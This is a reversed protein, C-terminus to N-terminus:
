ANPNRVWDTSIKTETWTQEYNYVGTPDLTVARTVYDVVGVTEGTSTNTLVGYMDDRAKMKVLNKLSGQPGASITREVYWEIEVSGPRISTTEDGLTFSTVSSFAEYKTSNKEASVTFVTDSSPFVNPEFLIIGNTYAIAGTGDGALEYTTTTDDALLDTGWEVTVTGPKIDGEGLDMVYEISTTDSSPALDKVDDFKGWKVIISSGVDPLAGLTLVLSGTWYDITGSGTNELDPVLKGHGDDRIRYWKGQAMYDIILSNPAPYPDILSPVYNYARNALKIYIEKTVSSNAIVAGLNVSIQASFAVTDPPTISILGQAYDVFGSYGGNTADEGVILSGNLDSFEAMTTGSKVIKVSVTGRAIARPCHASTFTGSSMAVTTSYRHHLDLIVSTDGGVMQDVFATEQRSVPVLQNYISDVQVHFEGQNVTQTVNSVGYYKASDTVVTAHIRSDAKTAYPTAELGPFDYLLAASLEVTLRSVTFSGYSPLVFEVETQAIDIIRVYQYNGTNYNKIVVTDNIEPAETGPPAFLAVARQGKLQDNLPRWILEHAISLYSEVKDRADQRIDTFDRRSFMTVYVNDDDPPDTVIVHAGYYMDSNATIVAPFAKRLSVRGYTRDLRSIDSFLNNLEGSVVEQGTMAGGGDYFDTLRESALLKIDTKKIAM